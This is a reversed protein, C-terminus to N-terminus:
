GILKQTLDKIYTDKEEITAELKEVRSELKSIQEKLFVIYDENGKTQDGQVVDGSVDRIQSLNEQINIGNKMRGQGVLLWERSLEPFQHALRKLFNDTLYRPDGNLAATTSSRTSGMKDALDKKTHVRGTDLLYQYAEELREKKTSM